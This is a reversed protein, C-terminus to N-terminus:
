LIEYRFTPSGDEIDSSTIVFSTGATITSIYWRGNRASTNHIVIVSNERVDEDTVTKTLGVASWTGTKVTRYKLFPLYQHLSAM